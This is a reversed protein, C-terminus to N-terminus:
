HIFYYDTMTGGVHQKSQISTFFIPLISININIKDQMSKLWLAKLLIDFWVRILHELFDVLLDPAQVFIHIFKEASNDTFPLHVHTFDNEDIDDVEKGDIVLM